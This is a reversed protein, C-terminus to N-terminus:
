NVTYSAKSFVLHLVHVELGDTLNVIYYPFFFVIIDISPAYFCAKWQHLKYSLFYVTILYNM